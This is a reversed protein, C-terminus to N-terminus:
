PEATFEYICQGARSLLTQSGFRQSEFTDITTVARTHTSKIHSRITVAYITATPTLWFVSLIISSSPNFSPVTSLFVDLLIAVHILM